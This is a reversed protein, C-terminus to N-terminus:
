NVGPLIATLKGRSRISDGSNISKTVYPDCVQIAMTAFRNQHLGNTMKEKTDEALVYVTSWLPKAAEVEKTQEFIQNGV